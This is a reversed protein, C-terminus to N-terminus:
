RRQAVPVDLTNSSDRVLTPAVLLPILDILGMKPNIFRGVPTSSVPHSTNTPGMVLVDQYWNDIKSVNEYNFVFCM